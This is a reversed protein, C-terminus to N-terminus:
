LIDFIVEPFVTVTNVMLHQVLDRLQDHIGYTRGALRDTNGPVIIRCFHDLGPEQLQVTRMNLIDHVAHLVVGGIDAVDLFIQQRRQIIGWDGDVAVIRGQHLM